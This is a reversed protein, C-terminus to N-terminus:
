PLPQLEVTVDEEGLNVVAYGPWLTQDDVVTLAALTYTGPTLHPITFSGDEAVPLNGCFDNDFSYTGAIIVEADIQGFMVFVRPNSGGIFRAVQGSIQAGHGLGIDLTSITDSQLEVTYRQRFNGDGFQYNALLHGLGMPLNSFLVTGDNAVGTYRQSGQQTSVELELHTTAPDGHLNCALSATGTQLEMRFIAQENAALELIEVRQAGPQRDTGDLVAQLSYRGPMLGKFVHRGDPTVTSQEFPGSREMAMLYAKAENSPSGNKLIECTLTAGKALTFEVPEGASHQPTIEIMEKAYEPHIASLFPDAVQSAPLSFAGSADSRCVVMDNVLGPSPNGSVIVANAISNGAEDRVTGQYDAQPQLRIEIGRLLEGPRDAVVTTQGFAYGDARVVVLSEDLHHLPVSFQGAENEVAEFTQPHSALEKSRPSGVQFHVVPQGTQGDIVRGEARPLDGLVLEVNRDGTAIEPLLAELYQGFRDAKIQYTGLPLGEMSFTGDEKTRLRAQHNLAGSTFEVQAKSLGRGKSDVVRGAIRGDGLPCHLEIDELKQGHELVFRDDDNLIANGDWVKLLVSGAPLDALEFRGQEDTSATWRRVSVEPSYQPVVETNAVASGSSYTARGRVSAKPQVLVDLPIMDVVPLTLPGTSASTETETEAWIWAGMTPPFGSVRFTGDFESVATNLVHFNRIEAGVTVTAGAVTQGRNDVVRGSVSEGRELAFDIGSVPKGAVVTFRRVDRAEESDDLWTPVYYGNASICRLYYDGEPLEAMSFRGETDTLMDEHIEANALTLKAGDIGKRTVAEYVRGSLVSESDDLDASGPNANSAAVKLVSSTEFLRTPAPSSLAPTLSEQHESDPSDILIWVGAGIVVLAALGAAIKSMLLGALASSNNVAIGSVAIQGLRSKLAMPLEAARALEDGFMAALTAAPVTVGRKRLAARVQEVGRHIRQTMAERSIKETAALEAHTCQELYHGVVARRLKEPLAAIAEDVLPYIDDWVPTSTQPQADHYTAERAARRSERKRWDLAANVAVRHLWPGLADGPARRNTALTEFCRQTIEEADHTNRLVRLATAYTMGAYKRTLEHFAEGDRNRHWQTLLTQDHM